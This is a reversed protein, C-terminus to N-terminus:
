SPEAGEPEAEADGVIADVNSSGVLVTVPEMRASFPLSVFRDRREEFPSQWERGDTDRSQLLALAEPKLSGVDKWLDGVQAQWVTIVYPVQLSSVEGRIARVMMPESPENPLRRIEMTIPRKLTVIVEM